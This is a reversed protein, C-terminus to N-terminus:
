LKLFWHIGFQDILGGIKGNYFNHLPYKITGGRVLKDFYLEIDHDNKCLLTLSINNGIVLEDQGLRDSALISIDDSVLSAHLINEQVQEPWHSKMPSDKVTETTLKGGFCDHYFMMAARCNGNFTVHPNITAM